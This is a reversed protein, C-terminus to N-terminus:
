DKAGYIEENLFVHGIYRERWELPVRGIYMKRGHRPDRWELFVHGNYRAPSREIGLCANYRVM